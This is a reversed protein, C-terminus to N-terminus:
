QHSATYSAQSSYAMMSLGDRHGLLRGPRAAAATGVDALGLGPEREDRGLKPGSDDPVTPADVDPQARSRASVAPAWRAISATATQHTSM